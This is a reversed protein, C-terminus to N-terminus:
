YCMIVRFSYHLVVLQVPTFGSWRPLPGRADEAEKLTQQYRCREEELRLREMQLQTLEAQYPSSTLVVAHGTDGGGHMLMMLKM